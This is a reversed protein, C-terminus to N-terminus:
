RRPGPRSSRPRAGRRGRRSRCRRHDQALEVLGHLEPGASSAAIRWLSFTTPTALPWRTGSSQCRRDDLASTCRASRPPPLAAQRRSAVSILRIKEAGRRAGASAPAVRRLTQSRAGCWAWQGGGAVLGGAQALHERVRLHAEHRDDGIRVDGEAAHHELAQAGREGLVADADSTTSAESRARSAPSIASTSRPWHMSRSDGRPRTGRPARAAAASRRSSRSSACSGAACRRLPARSRRPGPARRRARARGCTRARRRGASAASASATQGCGARRRGGASRSGRRRTSSAAPSLAGAQHDGVEQEAGRRVRRAGLADGGADGGAGVPENPATSRSQARTSGAPSGCSAARHPGAGDRAGLAEDRAAPGVTSDRVRSAPMEAARCALHIGSRVMYVALPWSSRFVVSFCYLPRTRRSACWIIALSGALTSISSRIWTPM